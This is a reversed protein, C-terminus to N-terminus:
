HTSVCRLLRTVTVRFPLCSPLTLFFVSGPVPSTPKVVIWRPHPSAVPRTVNVIIAVLFPLGTPHQRRCYRAAPFSVTGCFAARSTTDGYRASFPSILLLLLSCPFIGSPLAAARKSIAMYKSYARTPFFPLPFRRQTVLRVFREGAKVGRDQLMTGGISYNQETLLFNRLKLRRFTNHVENSTPLMFMHQRCILEVVDRFDPDGTADSCRPQRIVPLSLLFYNVVPLRIPVEAM